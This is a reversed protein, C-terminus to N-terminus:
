QANEKPIHIHHELRVIFGIKTEEFIQKLALKPVVNKWPIEMKELSILENERVPRKSGKM